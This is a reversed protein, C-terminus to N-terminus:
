YIWFTTYGDACNNKPVNEDGRGWFIGYENATMGEKGKGIVMMM